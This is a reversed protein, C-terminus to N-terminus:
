PASGNRSPGRAYDPLRFASDPTHVHRKSWDDILARDAATALHLKNDRGVVFRVAQYTATMPPVKRSVLPM